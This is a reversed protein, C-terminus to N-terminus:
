VNSLVLFTRCSENRNGKSCKPRFMFIQLTAIQMAREIGWKSCFASVAALMNVDCEGSKVQREQEKFVAAQCARRMTLTKALVKPSLSNEIGVMLCDYDSNSTGSSALTRMHMNIDREAKAKQLRFSEYDKSSYWSSPTGDETTEIFRIEPYASSFHVTKQPPQPGTNLASKTYKAKKAKKAANKSANSPLSDANAKETSEIIPNAELKRSTSKAKTAKKTADKPTAPKKSACETTTRLKNLRFYPAFKRLSLSRKACSSIM